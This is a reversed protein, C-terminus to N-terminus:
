QYLNFKALLETKSKAYKVTKLNVMKRKGTFVRFIYRLILWLWFVPLLGKAKKVFPFYIYIVRNMTHIGNVFINSNRTGTLVSAYPVPNKKGFNGSNLIDEIFETLCEDDFDGIWSKESLGLYKVCLATLRKCFEWVGMKNFAEEFTLSFDNFSDVFVAWDCLHRLGIGGGILHKIIHLIFIIGNHFDCPINCSVFSIKTLQSKYLIDNLYDSAAEGYKGEPIGNICFHMEFGVGKHKYGFHHDGPENCAVFGNEKLIKKTKEIDEKAVLFDVDGLSRIEPSHYYHSSALGKLITYKINNTTLLDHIEKHGYAVKMNKAILLDDEKVLGLVAQQKAEQVIEDNIQALTPKDFLKHALLAMLDIYTKDM